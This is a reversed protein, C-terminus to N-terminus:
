RKPPKKYPDSYVSGGKFPKYPEYPKFGEDGSTAGPPKPAPHPKYPEPMPVGYTPTQGAPPARGGPGGFTGTGPAKRPGGFTGQAQASVSVTLGLILTAIVLTRM